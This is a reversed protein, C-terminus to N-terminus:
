RAKIISLIAMEQGTTHEEIYDKTVPWTTGTFLLIMLYLTIVFWFLVSQIVQMWFFDKDAFLDSSLGGIKM